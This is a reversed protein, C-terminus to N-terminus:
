GKPPVKTMHASDYALLFQQAVQDLAVIRHLEPDGCSCTPEAAKHSLAVAFIAHVPSLGEQRLIEGVRHVKANLEPDTLLKEYEVINEEKVSM